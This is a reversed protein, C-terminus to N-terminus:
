LGQVVVPSTRETTSGDGLQGHDNVGWCRVGGATLRACTYEAGCAVEAVGTLGAVAVPTHRETTTGDGLQGHLNAGWCQVTGDALRACTHALGGCVAAVPGALGTVAVAVASRMTTDNGLQGSANDGWCRVGTPDLACSHVFGIGIATSTVLGQVLVPARQDALAASGTQALDNLGWCLVRGDALLTCAHGKGVGVQITPEALVGIPSLAAIVELPLDLQGHNNNGWCLARDNTGTACSHEFSTVLQKGKFMNIATTATETAATTTGDGLQGIRNAGWGRIDGNEVRVLTHGDLLGGGAAIEVARGLVTVRTPVSSAAKADGDGLQNADDAGWCYPAGEADLYCSHVVGLALRHESPTVPPGADTGVPAGDVPASDDTGPCGALLVLVAIFRM